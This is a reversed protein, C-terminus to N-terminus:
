IKKAAGLARGLSVSSDPMAEINSLSSMDKLCHQPDTVNQYPTGRVFAKEM